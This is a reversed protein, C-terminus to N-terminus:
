EFFKTAIFVNENKVTSRGQLLKGKDDKKREHWHGFSPTGKLPHAFPSVIQCFCNGDNIITLRLLFFLSASYSPM